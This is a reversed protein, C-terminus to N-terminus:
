RLNYFLYAESVFIISVLDSTLTLAVGSQWRLICIYVLNPIGVEFIHSTYEPCLILVLDLALDCHGSFSIYCKTMRVHM